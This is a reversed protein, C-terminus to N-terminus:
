LKNAPYLPPRPLTPTVVPPGDAPYEVCPVEEEPIWLWESVSDAPGGEFINVVAVELSRSYTFYRFQEDLWLVEGNDAVFLCLGGGYGIPCLPRPHFRAIHPAYEPYLLDTMMGIPNAHLCGGLVPAHTPLSLGHFEELFVHAPRNLPMGLRALEAGVATLDAHRDSFWGCRCLSERTDPRLYDSYRM